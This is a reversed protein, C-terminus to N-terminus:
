QVKRADRVEADLVAAFREGDITRAPVIRVRLRGEVTHAKGRRASGAGRKTDKMGDAVVKELHKVLRDLIRRALHRLVPIRNVMAALLPGAAYYLRILQRGAWTTTLRDDRFNRLVQVSQHDFDGYVATAVFCPGSKFSGSILEGAGLVRDLENFIQTSIKRAEGWDYVQFLAGHAKMTGGLTIQVHGDEMEMVHVSMKQGAYSSMSLGTEFNVIGNERDVTGLTYGLRSIVATLKRLAKEPTARYEVVIPKAM